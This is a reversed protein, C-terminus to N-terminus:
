QGGRELVLVAHSSGGVGLSLDSDHVVARRRGGTELGDLALVAQVTRFLGGSNPANTCLTGGSPNIRLGRESNPAAALLEAEKGEACLGLPAYTALEFPAFPANIEVAAVEARPDRLGAM